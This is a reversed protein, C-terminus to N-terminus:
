APIFKVADFTRCSTAGDPNTYVHIGSYSGHVAWKVHEDELVENM